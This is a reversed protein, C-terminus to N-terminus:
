DESENDLILGYLPDLEETEFEIIEKLIEKKIDPVKETHIHSKRLLPNRAVQDRLHAKM